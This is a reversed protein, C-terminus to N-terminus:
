IIILAGRFDFDLSHRLPFLLIGRTTACMFTTSMSVSLVVYACASLENGDFGIDTGSQKHLM